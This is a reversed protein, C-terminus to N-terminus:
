ILFDVYVFPDIFFKKYKIQLLIICGTPYNSIYTVFLRTTLPIKICNIINITYYNYVQPHNHVHPYFIVGYPRNRNMHYYTFPVRKITSYNQLFSLKASTPQNNNVQHRHQPHFRRRTPVDKPKTDVVTEFKPVLMEYVVVSDLEVVKPSSHLRRM